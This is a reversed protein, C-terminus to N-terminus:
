PTSGFFRRIIKDYIAIPYFFRKLWTRLTVKEIHKCLFNIYASSAEIFCNQKDTKKFVYAMAWPHISSSSLKKYVPIFGTKLAMQELTYPTFHFVHAIHFFSLDLSDYELNPVEIFLYGDRDLLDWVNNLVNSPDKFHELVHNLIVFNFHTMNVSLFDSIMGEFIDLQYEKKGYEAFNGNPEVGKLFFNNEKKQQCHSKVTSLVTGEAAGIDLLRLPSPLWQKIHDLLINAREQLKRQKIYAVNPYETSVYYNRYYFSYFYSLEADTLVPNTFVLGCNQCIVTTIDMSYRDKTFVIKFNKSGCCNCDISEKEALEYIFKKAISM